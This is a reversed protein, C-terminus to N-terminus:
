LHPSVAVIKRADVLPHSVAREPCGGPKSKGGQIVPRVGHDPFNFCDILWSQYINIPYDRHDNHIFLVRDPLRFLQDVESAEYM